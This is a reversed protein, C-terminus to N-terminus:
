SAIKNPSRAAPATGSDTLTETFSMRRSRVFNQVSIFISHVMFIELQFIRIIEQGSISKERFHRYTPPRTQTHNTKAQEGIALPIQQCLRWASLGSGDDLAQTLPHAHPPYAQSAAKLGCHSHSLSLHLYFSPPPLASCAPPPCAALCAPLSFFVMSADQKGQFRRRRRKRTGCGCGGKSETGERGKGKKGRCEYFHRRAPPRRAPAPQRASTEAGRIPQSNRRISHSRLPNRRSLAVFSPSAPPPAFAALSRCLPPPPLRPLAAQPPM